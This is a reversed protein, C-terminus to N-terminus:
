LIRLYYVSSVINTGSTAFEDTSYFASFTYGNLIIAKITIWVQTLNPTWVMPFKAVVFENAIGGTSTSFNYFPVTVGMQHAYGDTLYIFYLGQEQNETIPSNSTEHRSPVDLVREAGSSGYFSIADLFKPM